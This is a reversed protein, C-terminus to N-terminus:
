PVITVALLLGGPTVQHFRKESEMGTLGTQLALVFFLVASVSAVSKEEDDETRLIMQPTHPTPTGPIPRSVQFVIGFWHSLTSVISTMGLVSVVTESGRVLVEKGATYLSLGPLTAPDQLLLLVARSVWFTRLVAPVQLRGWEAELFTNLGFNNIFNRKDIYLNVLAQLLPAAQQGLSTGLLAAPLLSALFAMLALAPAPLTLLALLCPLVMVAALYDRALHSWRGSLRLLRRLLLALGTQLLYNLGVARSFPSDLLALPLLPLHPLLPVLVSQLWDGGQITDVMLRHGAYSAPIAALCALHQYVTVLQRSPLLFVLLAALYLLSCVAFRAMHPLLLLLPSGGYLEAFTSYLDSSNAIAMTMNPHNMDGEFTPAVLAPKTWVGLNQLLLSDMLYLPPLRVALELGKGVLGRELGEGGVEM